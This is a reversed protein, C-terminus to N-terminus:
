APCPLPLIDNGPLSRVFILVKQDAVRNVPVHRLGPQQDAFQSRDDVPQRFGRKAPRPPPMVSAPPM